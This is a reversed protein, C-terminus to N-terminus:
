CCKSFFPKAKQTSPRGKSVFIFSLLVFILFVAFFDIQFFTEAEQTSLRGKVFANKCRMRNPSVLKVRSWHSSSSSFQKRTFICLIIPQKAYKCHNCKNLLKTNTLKTIRTRGQCIIPSVFTELVQNDTSM